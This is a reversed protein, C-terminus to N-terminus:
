LPCAGCAGLPSPRAVDAVAGGPIPTGGDRGGLPGGPRFGGRILRGQLPRERVASSGLLFGSKREVPAVVGTSSDM